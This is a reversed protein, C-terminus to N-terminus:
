DARSQQHLHDFDPMFQGALISSPVTVAYSQNGSTGPPIVVNAIVQDAIGGNTEGLIGDGDWDIWANLCANAGSGNVRNIFLTGSSGITLTASILGDEDDTGALDDATAAANAAPPSDVDGANAGLKITAIATSSADAFLLSDGFDSADTCISAGGEWLPLKVAVNGLYDKAMVSGEIAGWSGHAHCLSCTSGYLPKGLTVSTANPFNWLIKPRLFTDRLVNINEGSWDYNISAGTLNIIIASPNKGNLNLDITQINGNHLLTNGDLSFVAPTGDAVGSGVNLYAIAPSSPITATSNAAMAAYTASEATISSFVTAFDFAPSTVLSNGASYNITFGNLAAASPAWLDGNVVNISGGAAISNQIAMTITGAGTVEQGTSFGSSGIISKIVSRGRIDSPTDLNNSIIANYISLQSACDTALAVIHDEM